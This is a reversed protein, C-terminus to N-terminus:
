NDNNEWNKVMENASNVVENQITPDYGGICDFHVAVQLNRTEGNPSRVLVNFHARGLVYESEATFGNNLEHIKKFQM